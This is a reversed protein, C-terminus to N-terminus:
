YINNFRIAIFDNMDKKNPIFVMDLPALPYFVEFTLTKRYIEGPVLNFKLDIDKSNKLEVIENNVKLYIASLDFLNEAGSTNVLKVDIELIKDALSKPSGVKLTYTDTKLPKDPPFLPRNVKETNPSWQAKNTVDSESKKTCQIQFFM